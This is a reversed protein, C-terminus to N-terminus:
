KESVERDIVQIARRTGSRGPRTRLVPTRDAFLLVDSGAKADLTVVDGPKLALVENISLRVDAVEARLTVDVASLGARVAAADEPGVAVDGDGSSFGSIVPAIAAFPLLLQMTSSVRRLRAELTLVLTPESTAAAHTAEGVHDITKLSLAAGATEEWISSLPEVMTALLRRALALDMETLKREKPPEASGDGGLLRELAAVVFALEVSLLMPQEIGETLVLGSVSNPPILNYADAWTLQSVELVEFEAPIREAGLRAAGTRCFTDLARKLRRQQESSFKTPRTFDVTRVWRERRAAAAPSGTPLKGESAADFLAEIEDPSLFDSNM